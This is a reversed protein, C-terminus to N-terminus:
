QIFSYTEEQPIGLWTKMTPVIKARTQEVEPISTTRNKSLDICHGCDVCMM